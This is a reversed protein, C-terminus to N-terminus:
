IIFMHDHTRCEGSLSPDKDVSSRNRYLISFLLNETTSQALDPEQRLKKWLLFM